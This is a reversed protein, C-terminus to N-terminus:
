FDSSGCYRFTSPAQRCVSGSTTGEAEAHLFTFHDSVPSQCCHHLGGDFAQFQFCHHYCTCHPCHHYCSCRRPHRRTQFCVKARKQLLRSCSIQLTKSGSHSCFSANRSASISSPSSTASPITSSSCPHHLLGLPEIHSCRWSSNAESPGASPGACGRRFPFLATSTRSYRTRLSSRSTLHSHKSVHPQQRVAM